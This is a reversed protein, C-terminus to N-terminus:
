WTSVHITMAPAPRVQRVQVKRTAIAKQRAGEKSDSWTVIRRGDVLYVYWRYVKVGGAITQEAQRIRSLM